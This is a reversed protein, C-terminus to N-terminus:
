LSFPLWLPSRSGKAKGQMQRHENQLWPRKESDGQVKGCNQERNKGMTPKERKQTVDTHSHVVSKKLSKKERGEISKRTKREGTMAVLEWCSQDRSDLEGKPRWKPQPWGKSVQQEPDGFRFTM